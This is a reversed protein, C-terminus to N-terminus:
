KDTIKVLTELTQAPDNEREGTFKIAPQSVATDFMMMDITTNSVRSTMAGSNLYVGFATSAAIIIAATIFRTFMSSTTRSHFISLNSKTAQMPAKKPTIKMFTSIPRRIETYRFILLYEFSIEPMKEDEIQEM